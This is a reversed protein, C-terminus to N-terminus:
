EGGGHTQIDASSALAVVRRVDARQADTLRVPCAALWAALLDPSCTSGATAATIAGDPADLAGSNAGPESSIGSKGASISSLETGEEGM